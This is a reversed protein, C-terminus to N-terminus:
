SSEVGLGLGVLYDRSIEASAVAARLPCDQDVVLWGTFEGTGLSEVIGGLDVDGQGLEVFGGRRAFEALGGEADLHQERFDADADKLTVYRVRELNQRIFRVPDVGAYFLHGVDPALFLSGPDTLDMLHDLEASTEVYSGAQNRFLLPMEFDRACIQTALALSDAFYGWQEDLLGDDREGLYHGATAMREPVPLSSAIVFSAELGAYFEAVRRLHDLEIERYIDAFWNAAYYGATVVLGSDELVRRAARLDGALSGVTEVGRYGAQGAEEAM